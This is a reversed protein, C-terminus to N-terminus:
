ARATLRTASVRPRSLGCAEAIECLSMASTRGVVVEAVVTLPEGHFRSVNSAHEVSSLIATLRDFPWARVDLRLPEVNPCGRLVEAHSTMCDVVPDVSALQWEDTIAAPNPEIAIREIPPHSLPLLIAKRFRPPIQYKRFIIL